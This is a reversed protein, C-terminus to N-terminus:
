ADVGRFGFNQRKLEKSSYFLIKTNALFISRLDMKIYSFLDDFLVGYYIYYAASLTRVQTPVLGIPGLGM